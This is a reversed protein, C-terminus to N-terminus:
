ASPKPVACAVPMLADDRRACRWVEADPEALGLCLESSEAPEASAYLEGGVDGEGPKASFDGVEAVQSEAQSSDALVL